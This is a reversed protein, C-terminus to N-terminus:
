NTNIFNNFESKAKQSEFLVSHGAGDIEVLKSNNCHNCNLIYEKFTPWSHLQIASDALGQVFLILVMM